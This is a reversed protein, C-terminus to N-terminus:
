SYSPDFLESIYIALLSGKWPRCSEVSEVYDLGVRFRDKWLCVNLVVYNLFSSRQFLTKM